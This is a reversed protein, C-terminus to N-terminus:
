KLWGSFHAQRSMAEVGVERIITQGPARVFVFRVKKGGVAKKDQLVLRTFKQRTAKPFNQRILGMKEMEECISKYTNASLIKKRLSWDLAFFLGLGVSRGHSLQYHGEIFHGFTHGLNLVHRVGKKEYPDRLVVKWKALVARKLNKLMLDEPSKNKSSTLVRWFDASDILAIKVLEALADQALKKPQAKLVEEVLLVKEAAYFSGIQNKYPPLNLATKGGHASDIAALWTSPIHVLRVGRKLVSAVFGSFDGVSGGGLAIVTLKQPSIDASLKLIRSMHQPFANLDKLKEGASVAMKKPFRYIWKKFENKAELKRDYILLTKQAALETVSPLCKLQQIQSPQM